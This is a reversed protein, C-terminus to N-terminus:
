VGVLAAAIMISTGIDRLDVRHLSQESRHRGGLLQESALWGTGRAFATRTRDRGFQSWDQRLLLRSREM